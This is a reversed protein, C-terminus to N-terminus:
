GPLERERARERAAKLLNIWRNVGLNAAAEMAEKTTEVRKPLSHRLRLLAEELKLRAWHAPQTTRILEAMAGVADAGKDVTGRWEFVHARFLAFVWPDEFWIAPPDSVQDAMERAMSMNGMRLATLGAGAHSIVRLHRGMGITWLRRASAFHAASRDLEREELALEGLKCQLAVHSEWTDVESLAEGAKAYWSRAQDLQGIARFGMGVGVFLNYHEVFDGGEGALREGEEVAAVAESDAILGRVGQIAVLRVLARLLQDPAGNRRATAIAERAHGLGERFEGQHHLALSAHLPGRSEPDIGSLLEKAHAALADAERGRGERRHIHLELDIAQAAARWHKAREAARRLERIRLVAERPSWAGDAALLDVRQIESVLASELDRVKRLRAAATELRKPGEATERRHYHLRALLEAMKAYARPDRIDRCALAFLQSAEALARSRVAAGVGVLAHRLANTPMRAHRYHVVLEAPTAGTDPGDLYRAAREHAWIRRAARMQHYVTHRILEYRVAFGDRSRGVLRSQQLSDLAHACAARSRETSRSLSGLDLPRGLVTLLQLVCEADDDLEALRRSFVESISRPVPVFDDPDLNPLNSGALQMEALIRLFLPNRDGLEVIQDREEPEIRGDAVVDVLDRAAERTLEGLSFETVECQPPSDGLLGALPDEERVTETTISLTFAPPSAPWRRLVHRLFTASDAAVRHFDDIFIIMHDSGAMHLLLRGIAELYRRDVRNLRIPPPEFLPKAKARPEALLELMMARWPEALERLDSRIGSSTLADLVSDLFARHGTRPARCRLIRSGRLLDTNLCEEVLRTKGTGREGRVIVLRSGGSSRPLMADSLAALEDARGILPPNALARGAVQPTAGAPMDRIHDVLSLTEAQPVWKRDDLESRELFNQFAAEAERVRGAMAEARILMRLAQEDYANLSLLVRAPEVARTWRGQGNLHTWRGAAARRIRGRLELRTEELWESFAESPSEILDSLFGRKLLDAAEMLRNRSIAADVFPYDTAVSRGLYHRHGKRLVLRGGSERNLSYVLQSLRHKRRGAPGPNWLLEIVRANCVGDHPATALLGLLAGRLPSLSLVSSGTILTPGGFTLFRFAPRTADQRAQTDVRGFPWEAM